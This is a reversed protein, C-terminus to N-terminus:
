SESRLQGVRFVIRKVAGEGLLAQTRKLLTGQYKQSLESALASDDVWVCLTGAMQLTPKTHQSFSDGAIQPWLTQLNSRDKKIGIRLDQLLSDIVSGLPGM